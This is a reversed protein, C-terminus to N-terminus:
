TNANQKTNNIDIQTTNRGNTIMQENSKEPLYTNAVDEIERTLKRACYQYKEAVLLLLYQKQKGALWYPLIVGM